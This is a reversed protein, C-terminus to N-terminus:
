KATKRCPEFGVRALPHGYVAYALWTADGAARSAERAITTAEALQKEARLAKYLSETFIRAPSDGVSWLAGVFIGAGAALSADAFGGISTLQWGAQGVQCANLVIVGRNGDPGTLDSNQAIASSMFYDLDQGDKNCGILIRANGGGNPEAEGHGSFHFLDVAGAHGLLARLGTAEVPAIARAGIGDRLFPIENQAEPLQLPPYAYNPIAYYAKESRIKIERPANSRNYLWRVLGKQGLFHLDPPLKRRGDGVAPAKLHVLEWPIFPETSLVHIARLTNRVKWLASQISPPILEDLMTGGYDRLDALFANIKAKSGLWRNEIDKYINNVYTARDVKFPKSESAIYNSDGLDLVFHFWNDSGNRCETIQLVPLLGTV